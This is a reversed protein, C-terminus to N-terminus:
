SGSVIVVPVGGGLEEHILRVALGVEAVLVRVDCSVHVPEPAVLKKICTRSLEFLITCVIFLAEPLTVSM